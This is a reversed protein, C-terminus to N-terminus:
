FDKSNCVSKLTMSIDQLLDDELKIGLKRKFEFVVPSGFCRSWQLVAQKLLAQHKMWGM